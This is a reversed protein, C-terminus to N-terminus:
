SKHPAPRDLVLGLLIALDPPAPTEFRMTEGTAPHRFGLSAAHLAQRPFGVLAARAVPDLTAAVAPTRRLYVPDGVLPHGATSAHVRIQHTRGSQLRCGLLSVGIGLAGLRRYCTTALKGGRVVVAM